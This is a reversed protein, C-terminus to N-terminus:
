EYQSQLPVANGLASSCAYPSGYQYEPDARHVARYVTARGVGFLEALDSTTHSGARHLEILHKEQATNLKPKDCRLKGAHSCSRETDDNECREM